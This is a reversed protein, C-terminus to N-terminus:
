STTASTPLAISRAYEAAGLRRVGGSRVLHTYQQEKFDLAPGEPMNLLAEVLDPALTM